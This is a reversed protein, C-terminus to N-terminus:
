NLNKVQLYHESLTYHTYVIINHFFILFLGSKWMEQYTKFIHVTTYIPFPTFYKRQSFILMSNIDQYHFYQWWCISVQITDTIFYIFSVILYQIYWSKYNSRFTCFMVHSMLLFYICGICSIIMQILSHHITM